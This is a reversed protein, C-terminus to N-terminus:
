SAGCCGGGKEVQQEAVVRPPTDPLSHVDADGLLSYMEWAVGDADRVWYKDAKAYCCTTGKQEEIELGAARSRALDADVQESGEHRIGLHSLAGPEGGLNLSLILPPDALEFKAFDPRVKAPEIGLIARYRDVARSLDEVCLSVHFTKM